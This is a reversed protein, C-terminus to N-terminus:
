RIIYKFWYFMTLYSLAALITLMLFFAQMAQGQRVSASYRSLDAHYIHSAAQKRKLFLLLRKMTTKNQLFTKPKALAEM